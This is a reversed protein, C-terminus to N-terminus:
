RFRYGVHVAPFVTVKSSEFTKGALTADDTGFSYGVGLWPTAHFGAGLDFRYGADVGVGVQTDRRALDTGRRQVQVRTVGGDIGIFAGLQEDFPFYQVKAGYGDFAVDFDDNGHVFSPIAMAYAGVDVRVRRYGIGVHLSYGDLAYATPDVEADAHLGSQARPDAAPNPEATAPSVWGFSATILASTLLLKSINM